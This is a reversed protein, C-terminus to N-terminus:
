THRGDTTGRLDRDDRIMCDVVVVAKASIVGDNEGDKTRQIFDVPGHRDDVEVGMEICPRRPVFLLADRMAGEEVDRAFLPEQRVCAHM